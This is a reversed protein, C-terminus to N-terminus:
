NKNKQAASYLENMKEYESLDPNLLNKVWSEFWKKFALFKDKTGLESIPIKFLEGHRAFYIGIFEIPKNNPNHNV